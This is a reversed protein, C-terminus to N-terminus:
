KQGCMENIYKYKYVCLCVFTKNKNRLHANRSANVFDPMMLEVAGEKDRFLFLSFISISIHM